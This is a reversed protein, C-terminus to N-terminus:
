LSILKNISILNSSIIQRLIKIRYLGFIWRVHTIIFWIWGRCYVFLHLPTDCVGQLPRIHFLCAFWCIGFNLRVLTPAYRMRGSTPSFPIMVCGWLYGFDISCTYPRIAYARIHAFNFDDRLVIFGPFCDFLHLPTDCLGQHSRFQFSHACCSM